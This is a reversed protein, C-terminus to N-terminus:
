DTKYRFGDQLAGSRMEVRPDVKPICPFPEYWCEDYWEACWLSYGQIKCPATSLTIYDTPLLLRSMLTEKQFSQGLVMLQFAILLTVVAAPLRASQKELFGRTIVFLPSLALLFAIMLFGYGYRYKPASSFWFFVGSFATLYALWQRILHERILEGTENKWLSLFLTILPFIVIVLLVALQNPTHRAIWLPFWEGFTMALTTATDQGPILEWARIADIDEQVREAPIKWDSNFLDIEAYPYFLYGSLYVSRIMWPTVIFAGLTVLGAFLKWNRSQLLRYTAYVAVLLLPFVSLKITVAFIAILSLLILHSIPIPTGDESLAVCELLTYWLLIASPLDTGPSSIQSIIVYFSIPIMCVKLINSLRYDRKLIRPIAGFLYIQFILFILSSVLHLSRLGLFSFSFIANLTLWASNFAFRTHLSGLGPVIKYIEMWRIAQAHYLGTDSNAVPQTAKELVTITIVTILIFALFPIKEPIAPRPLEKKYIMWGLICVAGALILANAALGLKMILSLYNALSTVVGLGVMWQMTFDVQKEWRNSTFQQILRITFWGYLWIIITTYLWFIVVTAM